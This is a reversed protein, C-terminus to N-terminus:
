ELGTLVIFSRIMRQLLRSPNSSGEEIPKNNYPLDATMRQQHVVAHKTQCSWLFDHTSHPILALKTSHLLKPALTLASTAKSSVYLSPLRSHMTPTQRLFNPKAAYVEELANSLVPCKM